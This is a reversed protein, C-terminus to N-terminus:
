LRLYIIFDCSVKLVTGAKNHWVNETMLIENLVTLLKSIIM